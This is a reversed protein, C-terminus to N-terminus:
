IFSDLLEDTSLEPQALNFENELLKILESCDGKFFLKMQPSEFNISNTYVFIWRKEDNYYSLLSIRKITDSWAPEYSGFTFKTSGIARKLLGTANELTIERTIM